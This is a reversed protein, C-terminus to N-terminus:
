FIPTFFLVNIRTVYKTNGVEMINSESSGLTNLVSKQRTNDKSRRGEDRMVFRGIM